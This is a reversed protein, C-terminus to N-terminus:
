KMLALLAAVCGFGAVGVGIFVYGFFRAENGTVERHLAWWYLRQQVLGARYGHVIAMLSAILVVAAWIRLGNTM